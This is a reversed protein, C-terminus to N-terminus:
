PLTLLATESPFPLAPAMGRLRTIPLGAREMAARYEARDSNDFLIVGGPALKPLAASLCASRSRGDIVILDFLGPQATLTAVYDDFALETYGARNSRCEGAKGTPAQPEVVLFSVNPLAALTGRISAAFGADHEVSVVEAARKSLWVTSAGAGFEFVRAKGEREALFQEAREIAPFTWWPWDLQILDLSDYIGFLSRVWRVRASSSAELRRLLGVREAVRRAQRVGGVYARKLLPAKM